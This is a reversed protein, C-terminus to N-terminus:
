SGSRSRQAKRVRAKGCGALVAGEVGARGARRAARHTLGRTPVVCDGCQRLLETGQCQGESRSQAVRVGGKVDRDAGRVGLLSTSIARLYSVPDLEGVIAWM